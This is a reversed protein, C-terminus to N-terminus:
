LIDQDNHNYQDEIVQKEYQIKENSLQQEEFLIYLINFM